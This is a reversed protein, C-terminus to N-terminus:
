EGSKEGPKNEPDPVFESLLRPCKLPEGIVEDILGLWYADSATLYNREGEQLAHCLASLFAFLPEFHPRAKEILKKSQAEKDQISEVEEMDAENLSFRGWQACSDWFQEGAADFDPKLMVFRFMFRSETNRTLKVASRDNSIKLRETLSAGFEETVPDAPFTRVGHYFIVSEPSALVYDGASLMDAAASSARDIAVTIVRCGPVTDQNSARILRMIADAANVDGGPSNICITIPARSIAQFSIISPTLRDVM